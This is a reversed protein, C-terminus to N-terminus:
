EIGSAEAVGGALPEWEGAPTGALESALRAFVERLPLGLEAALRRCEDYEPRLEERGTVGRVRKARVPGWSTRVLEEARALTRRRVPWFRVGITTSEVFLVEALDEIRDEDALCSVLTAPRGGRMAVPTLFVERAGRQFLREELWRYLQPNMDDINTELVALREERHGGADPAEGLLVRLCNPPDAGDRRGAGYGVKRCLLAAPRGPPRALTTVLAAGTPTTLEARVDLPELRWGELLLAVAPAPVPLRGHATEVYGAGTRFPSAELRGIGLLDLASVAGCVDLIADLAGVEHFHVDATSIGHVRAEADALRRFVALSREKVHRSFGAAGIIREIEPLRRHRVEERVSWAALTATIAGRRVRRVELGFPPIPLGELSARLREPDLGADILAGVIMDGSVGSFMDLYAIM